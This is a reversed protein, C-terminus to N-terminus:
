DSDVNEVGVKKLGVNRIFAASKFKVSLSVSNLAM